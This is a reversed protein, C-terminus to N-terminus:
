RSFGFDRDHGDREIVRDQTRQHELRSRSDDRTQSAFSRDRELNRQKLYGNMSDEHDLLAAARAHDRGCRDALWGVAEEKSMERGETKMVQQVLSVATRAMLHGRRDFAGGPTITVLLNKDPKVFDLTGRNAGAMGKYGMMKMVTAHDIDQV